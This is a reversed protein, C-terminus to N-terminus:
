WCLFVKFTVIFLEANYHLIQKTDYKATAVYNYYNYFVIISILQLLHLVFGILHFKEAGLLELHLKIIYHKLM